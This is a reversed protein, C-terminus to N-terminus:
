TAGDGRAGDTASGSLEDKTGLLVQLRGLAEVDPIEIREGTIRLYNRDRLRQVAVKVAEVDLGVRASLEVPSITVALGGTSSSATSAARALKLIATTVKSQVGRLMMIEIQDEADGVRRVLQEIVHAAVVPYQGLLGRFTERDLVLTVAETLAAATSGYATRGGHQTLAGEGFLDGAKLLALSRDSLGVRKVLRVRGQQLLFAETAPAGEHFVITGAPLRRGYRGLLRAREQPAIGEFPLEALPANADAPADNM